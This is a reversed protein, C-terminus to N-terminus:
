AKLKPLIQEYPMIITAAGWEEYFNFSDLYKCIGDAVFSDYTRVTSHINFEIDEKQLEKRCRLTCLFGM